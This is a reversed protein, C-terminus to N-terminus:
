FATASKGVSSANAAEALYAAVTGEGAPLAQLGHRTSWACFRDWDARYAALTNASRAARRFAEVGAREGLGAVDVVVVSRAAVSSPKAAWEGVRENVVPENVVPEADVSEADLPEAHLPEAPGAGPVSAAELAGEDLVEGREATPSGTEQSAAADLPGFPGDGPAVGGGPAEGVGELGEAVSVVVPYPTEALIPVFM